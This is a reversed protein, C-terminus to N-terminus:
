LRNIYNGVEWALDRSDILLSFENNRSLASHTLNHSGLFVFREDIVVAKSHTTTSPSDLRVTINHRRLQRAVRNNEETIDQNYNSKDLVVLIQVGRKAATILEEMIMAARNDPSDTIKFLFMVMTIRYDADHIYRRLADFYEEDPLIRIQGPTTSLHRRVTLSSIKKAGSSPSQLTSNGSFILYPRIAELTKGGIDKVQLLEDATSFAGHKQRHRIVARARTAGIFPLQQLEKASATNINITGSLTSSAHVSPSLVFCAFLLLIFTRCSFLVSPKNKM